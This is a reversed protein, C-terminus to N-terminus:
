TNPRNALMTQKAKKSPQLLMTEYSTTHSSSGQASLCDKLLHASTVVTDFDPLRPKPKISRYVTNNCITTKKFKVTSRIVFLFLCSEVNIIIILTFHNFSVTSVVVGSVAILM